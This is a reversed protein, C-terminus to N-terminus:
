SFLFTYMQTSKMGQPHTQQTFRYMMQAAVVDEKRTRVEDIEKEMELIEQPVSVNHLHARSGAEDM